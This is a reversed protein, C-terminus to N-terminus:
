TWSPAAVLRCYRHISTAYQSKSPFYLLLSVAPAVFHASVSHVTSKQRIEVSRASKSGHFWAANLDALQMEEM